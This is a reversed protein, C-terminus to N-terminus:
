QPGRNQGSAPVTVGNLSDGVFFLGAPATPIIKSRVGALYADPRFQEIRGYIEKMVFQPEYRLGLTLSLNRRAKWKDEAFLGIVNQRSDSYDGSTQTYSHMHGMVFSALGLGTLTDAFQWNGNEVDTNRINSQDREVNGGFSFTHSGRTWVLQDRIEYTNRYFSGLTFNGLGFYGNTIGFARIGGQAKPLQPVNAGFDNFQPM